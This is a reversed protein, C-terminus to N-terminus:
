WVVQIGRTQAVWMAIQAYEDRNAAQEKAIVNLLQSNTCQECCLKFDEREATTM